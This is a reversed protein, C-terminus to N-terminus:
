FNLNLVLALVFFLSNFRLVEEATTGKAVVIHLNMRMDQDRTVFDIYKGLDDRAAEEGVIILDVQGLYVTNSMYTQAKKLAEFFTQGDSIVVNDIEETSGQLDEQDRSMAPAFTVRMADDSLKDVGIAQVLTKRTLEERQPLNTKSGANVSFVLAFLFLSGILAKTNRKM